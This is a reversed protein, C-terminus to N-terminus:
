HEIKMVLRHGSGCVKVQYSGGGRHRQWLVSETIYNLVKINVQLTLISFIVTMYGM